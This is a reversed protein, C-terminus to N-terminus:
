SAVVTKGDFTSHNSLPPATRLDGLLAIVSYLTCNQTERLLVIRVYRKLVRSVEIACLKDDDGDGITYSAGDIDEMDSADSADGHQVKLSQVGGSVIPGLAALFAISSAGQMDITNGNVDTTGAAQYGMALRIDHENTLQM